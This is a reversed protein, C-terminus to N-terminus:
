KKIGELSIILTIDDGAIGPMYTMGFDGRRITFQTEGGARYEDKMGKGKGTIKFELTLPKTVGRLTLNGTVNYTDDGAKEIKASKFAITPFQKVNFFDPGKLVQDRKETHTDISDSKVELDLSDAAPNSPDLTVTGTVDNFRGYFDTVNLHRVKFVVSSHVPDIQYTDAAQAALGLSGVFLTVIILKSTKM